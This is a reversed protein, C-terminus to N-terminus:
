STKSRVLFLSRSYRDVVRDPFTFSDSIVRFIAESEGNWTNVATLKLVSRFCM